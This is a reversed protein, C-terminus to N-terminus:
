INGDYDIYKNSIIRDDKYRKTHYVISKDKKENSQFKYFLKKM